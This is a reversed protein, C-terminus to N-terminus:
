RTISSGINPRHQILVAKARSGTEWFIIIEQVSNYKAILTITEKWCFNPIPPYRPILHM